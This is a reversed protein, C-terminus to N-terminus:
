KKLINMNYSRGAEIHAIKINLKQLSDGCSINFEMLLLICDYKKKLFNEIKWIMKGTMAGHDLSSIKLNKIPKKFKIQIIKSVCDFHQGTHLIGHWM